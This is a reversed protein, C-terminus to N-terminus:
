ETDMRNYLSLSPSSFPGAAVTRTLVASPPSYVVVYNCYM